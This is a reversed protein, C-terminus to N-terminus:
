GHLDQQVELTFRYRDAEEAEVGRQQTTGLNTQDEITQHEEEVADGEMAGGKVAQSFSGVQRLVAEISNKEDHKLTEWSGYLQKGGKVKVRFPIQDSFCLVIEKIRERFLKPAFVHKKLFSLPGFFMQHMEHDWDKWTEIVRRGEEKLSLTLMRQPKM